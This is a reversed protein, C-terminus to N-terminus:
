INKNQLNLNICDLIMVNSCKMLKVNTCGELIAHQSLKIECENSDILQVNYSKIIPM